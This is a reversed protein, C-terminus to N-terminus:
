LRCLAATTLQGGIVSCWGNTHTVTVVSGWNAQTQTRDNGMLLDFDLLPPLVTLQCKCVHGAVQVYSSQGPRFSFVLTSSSPMEYGANNGRLRREVLNSVIM